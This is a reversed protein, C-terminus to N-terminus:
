KNLEKEAPVRLADLSADIWKKALATEDNYVRLFMRVANEYEGLFYLSEGAYFTARITIENDANLSLFRSLKESADRYKKKIFTTRLIDFLVFDSGGDPAILDKEFIYPELIKERSFDNSLNRAKTKANESIKENTSNEASQIQLAPLPIGRKSGKPILRENETKQPTIKKAVIKKLRHIGSRTANMAPIVVDYLGKDTLSVVAYYYTKFDSAEDHASTENADLRLFPSANKIDSFNLIPKTDKYIFFAQLKEDPNKPLDWRIFIIKDSSEARINKVIPSESALPFFVFIQFIAITFLKSFNKM